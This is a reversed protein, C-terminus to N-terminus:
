SRCTRSEGDNNSRSEKAASRDPIVGGASALATNDSLSGSSGASSTVRHRCRGAGGRDDLAGGLLNGGLLCQGVRVGPDFGCVLGGRGGVGGAVSQEVPEAGAVFRHERIGQGGGVCGAPAALEERDAARSARGIASALTRSAHVSARRAFSWASSIVTAWWRTIVSRPRAGAPGRRAGALWGARVDGSPAPSRVRASRFPEGDGALPREGRPVESPSRRFKQGSRCIVGRRAPSLGM